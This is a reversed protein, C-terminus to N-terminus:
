IKVHEPIELSFEFKAGIFRGIVLMLMHSLECNLQKLRLKSERCYKPGKCKENINKDTKYCGGLHTM